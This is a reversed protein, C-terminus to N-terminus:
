ACCNRSCRAGSLWRRSLPARQASRLSRIIRGVVDDGTVDGRIYGMPIPSCAEGCGLKLIPAIYSVCDVFHYRSMYILGPDHEPQTVALRLMGSSRAHFVRTGLSEQCRMQQAYTLVSLVSVAIHNMLRTVVISTHM